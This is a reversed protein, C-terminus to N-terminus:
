DLRICTAPVWGSAGVANRAQHWGNLTLEGCLQEGPNVSLERACYDTTAIGQEGGAVPPVLGEVGNLVVDVLEQLLHCVRDGVAVVGGAAM